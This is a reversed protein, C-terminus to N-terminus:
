SKGLKQLLLFIVFAGTSVVAITSFAEFYGFPASLDFVRMGFLEFGM